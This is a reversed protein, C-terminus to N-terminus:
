GRLPAGCAGNTPRSSLPQRSTRFVSARARRWSVGTGAPSPRRRRPCRCSGDRRPLEGASARAFPRLRHCHRRPRQEARRRLRGSVPREVLDDLALGAIRSVSSPSLGLCFSPARRGRGRAAVLALGRPDLLCRRGSTPRAPAASPSLRAPRPTRRTAASRRPSRRATCREHEDELVEVPGVLTQEVEDLVDGVPAAVRREHQRHVARGSRRLLLPVAHPLRVPLASVIVDAATSRPRSRGPATAGGRGTPLGRLAQPLRQERAGLPLGSYASSNTRISTSRPWSTASFPPQVRRSTSGGSGSDTWPIM